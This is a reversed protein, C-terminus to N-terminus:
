LAKGNGPKLQFKSRDVGDLMRTNVITFGRNTRAGITSGCAACFRHLRNKQNFVYTTLDAESGHTFAFQADPTYILLYGRDECISCNCQVVPVSYIDPYTFEFRVRRCHCGGTCRKLEANAPWPVPLSVSTSTTETPM